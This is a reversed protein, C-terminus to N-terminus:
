VKNDSVVSEIKLIYSFFRPCINHQTNHIQSAEDFFNFIDSMCLFVFPIHITISYEESKDKRKVV